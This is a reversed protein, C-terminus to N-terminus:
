AEAIFGVRDLHRRVPPVVCHRGVTQRLIHIQLEVQLVQRVFAVEILHELSM